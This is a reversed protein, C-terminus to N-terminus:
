TDFGYRRLRAPAPPNRPYACGRGGPAKDLWEESLDREPPISECGFLDQYFRAPRQWDSAILNTHSYRAKM